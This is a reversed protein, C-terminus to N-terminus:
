APQHNPHNQVPVGPTQGAFEEPGALDTRPRRSPPRYCVGSPTRRPPTASDAGPAIPIRAAPAITNAHAAAAAADSHGAPSGNAARHCCGSLASSARVTQVRIPGGRTTRAFVALRGDYM